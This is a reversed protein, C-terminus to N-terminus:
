GILEDTFDKIFIRIIYTFTSNIKCYFQIFCCLPYRVFVATIDNQIIEDPVGNNKAIASFICMFNRDGDNYILCKDCDLNGVVSDSNTGLLLRLQELRKM